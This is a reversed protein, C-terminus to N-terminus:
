VTRAIVTASMHLSCFVYRCYPIVYRVSEPTPRLLAGPVFVVTCTYSHLECPVRSYALGLSSFEYKPESVPVCLVFYLLSRDLLFVLASLGGDGRPRFILSM